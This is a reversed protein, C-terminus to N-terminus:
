NDSSKWLGKKKKGNTQGKIGGLIDDFSIEKKKSQEDVEGSFGPEGMSHLGSIHRGTRGRDEESGAELMLPSFTLSGSGTGASWIQPSDVPGLWPTSHASNYESAPRSAPHSGYGPVFSPPLPLPELTPAISLRHKSASRSGPQSPIRFGQSDHRSGPRSMPVSGPRSFNPGIRESSQSRAFGTYPDQVQSLPRLDDTSEQPAQLLPSDQPFQGDLSGTPPPLMMDLAQAWAEAVAWCHSRRYIGETGHIVVHSPLSVMGGGQIGFWSRRDQGEGREQVWPPNGLPPSCLFYEVGDAFRLGPADIVVLPLAQLVVYIFLWHGFSQDAIDNISSGRAENEEFSRFADIFPHRIEADMNHTKGLVLGVEHDKLKRNEEHAQEKAPKLNHNAALIAMNPIIPLDFPIPPLVPPSSSDYEGMINRLASTTMETVTRDSDPSGVRTEQEMVRTTMKERDVLLDYLRCFDSYLIQLVVRNLGGESFGNKKSSAKPPWSGHLDKYYGLVFKRFASFNSKWAKYRVVKSEDSSTSAASGNFLSPIDFDAIRLNVGKLRRQLNFDARELRNRTNESIMNFLHPHSKKVAHYQGVCHTFGENYLDVSRMQEALIIGEIIKQCNGRVDALGLQDIHYDFCASAVEGFTDGDCNAFQYMKLQSAISCLLGFATPYRRTAVLARGALFAFLNRAAILSDPQRTTDNDDETFPFALHGDALADVAGAYSSFEQSTQNPNCLSSNLDLRRIADEASLSNRGDFSRSRARLRVSQLNPFALKMLPLSASILRSSIKFSPGRMAEPPFLYV